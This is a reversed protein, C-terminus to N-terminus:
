IAAAIVAACTNGGAHDSQKKHVGLGARLKDVAVLRPDPGGVLWIQKKSTDFQKRVITEVCLENADLHDASVCNVGFGNMLIEAAGVGREARYEDKGYQGSGMHDKDLKM